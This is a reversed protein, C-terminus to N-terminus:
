DARKFEDEKRRRSRLRGQLEAFADDALQRRETSTRRDRSAYGVEDLLSSIDDLRERNDAIVAVFLDIEDFVQDQRDLARKVQSPLARLPDLDAKLADRIADRLRDRRWDVFPKAIRAIFGWVILLSGAVTALFEVVDAARQTADPPLDPPPPNM